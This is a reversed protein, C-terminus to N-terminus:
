HVLINIPLEGGAARFCTKRSFAKVSHCLLLKSKGKSVSFLLVLVKPLLNGASKMSMYQKELLSFSM